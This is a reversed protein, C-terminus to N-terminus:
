CQTGWNKQLWKEATQSLMRDLMKQCFEARNKWYAAAWEDNRATAWQANQVAEDKRALWNEYSCKM